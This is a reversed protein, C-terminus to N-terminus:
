QRSPGDVAFRAAAVTQAVFFYGVAPVTASPQNPAAVLAAVAAVAGVLVLRSVILPVPQIQDVLRLVLYPQLFLLAILWPRFIPTLTPAAANILTLVFLSAFAGFVAVVSLELPGPRLLYRWVSAGFLAYFALQLLVATPDM